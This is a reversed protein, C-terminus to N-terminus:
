NKSLFLAIKQFYGTHNLLVQIKRIYNEELELKRYYRFLPHTMSQWFIPPGLGECLM